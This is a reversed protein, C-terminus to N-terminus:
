PAFLGFCQCGAAIRDDPACLTFVVVLAVTATVVVLEVWSLGGGTSAKM